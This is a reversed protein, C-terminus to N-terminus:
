RRSWYVSLAKASRLAEVIFQETHNSIEMKEFAAKTVESIADYDTNNEERILINKLTMAIGRNKNATQGINRRV